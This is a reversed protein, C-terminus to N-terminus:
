CDDDDDHQTLALAQLVAETARARAPDDPDKRWIEFRDLTKFVPLDLTAERTFNLEIYAWSQETATAEEHVTFLTQGPRMLRAADMLWDEGLTPWSCLVNREPWQNIASVADLPEVPAWKVGCEEAGPDTAIVDVGRNALLRAWAGCGAGIELVPAHKSLADLAEATPVAFGFMGIFFSREIGLVLERLAHKEIDRHALLSRFIDREEARLGTRRYFNGFEAIFEAFSPVPELGEVWARMAEIPARPRQLAAQEGYIEAMRRDFPSPSWPEGPVSRVLPPVPFSRGEEEM